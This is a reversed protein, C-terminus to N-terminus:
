GREKLARVECPQIWWTISEHQYLISEHGRLRSLICSSLSSGCQREAFSPTHAHLVVLPRFSWGSEPWASFHLFSPLLSCMLVKFINFFSSIKGRGGFSLGFLVPLVLRLVALWLSIKEGEKGWGSVSFRYISRKESTSSFNWLSWVVRFAFFHSMGDCCM